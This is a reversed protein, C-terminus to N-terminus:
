LAKLFAQRAAAANEHVVFLIYNGQIETISRSLLDYQEVGYGEFSKLQTQRRAEIANAVTKQQSLDSLKVLLLERAGMNTSPYYLMCGDLESPAFGYLRRVMQADAPQMEEFDLSSLVAKSVDDFRASSLKDQITQTYLFLVTALVASFAVIRLVISGASTRRKIQPRAANESTPASDATRKPAAAQQPADRRPASAEPSASSPAQAGPVPSDTLFESFDIGDIMLSVPQQAASSPQKVRAEAPRATLPQPAAPDDQPASFDEAFSHPEAPSATQPAESPTPESAGSGFEALIERLAQEKYAEDGSFASLDAPSSSSTEETEPPKKTLTM